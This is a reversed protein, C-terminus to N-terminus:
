HGISLAEIFRSVMNYAAVTAVLETLARANFHERLPEFVVDPVQVDRTMTDTLRLVALELANFAAGPVDARLAALQEDNVGAARAHPVHADFEYPARNLVAVRLIVMERLAPPLSNRNRIATLLERWGDALPASNLLVQYLLMVSGREAAIAGEIAALDPRTGPVVPPVRTAV